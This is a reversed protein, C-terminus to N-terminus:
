LVPIKQVQEHLKLWLFDPSQPLLSTHSNWSATCMTGHM